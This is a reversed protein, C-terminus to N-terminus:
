DNIELVISDLESINTKQKPYVSLLKEIIINLGEKHYKAPTKYDISSHIRRTNYKEIYTWISYYAELPTAYENRYVEEQKLSRRFREIIINDIARGKGDMSIQIGNSELLWTFENSTFQSWQDSNFIEPKGKELAKNLVGTCFAIDMVPSIDRTIIMRSYWDIIACCYVFWKWMKIYTIDTSRVQNPKTIKLWKLLYLYKKHEKNALSTNPKPYWPEINMIIM